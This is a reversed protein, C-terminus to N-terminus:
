SRRARQLVIEAAQLLETRTASWLLPAALSAWALPSLQPAFLPPGWACFWVWARAYTVWSYRLNGIHVLVWVQLLIFTPLAVMEAWGYGVFGLRPVLLAAAGAFVAVHLLMFATVERTRGLVQLVSIYLNSAAYGLSFLAIFPYVELVPVWSPGLLPPLAYHAVLGAGALLPGLFILQLNTGETVANVLKTRDAQVRALAAISLRYVVQTADFSFQQVLRIALAVYGVADAGAYRGVILPNVLDRLQGTWNSASYRLGYGLMTRAMATEWHPRPRYASARYLLSLTLLQQAWWGSVPAWPGLGGYALPLAVTYTTIQGSLEILAIRKYDLARELSALPVLGLMNAPLGVFLATAVPGFGEMRVWREILPLALIALAAGAVGLLLLLWFALHYDQPRPEEESRILYVEIGLRSVMGLFIYIGLAAGWLGYNGPGLARTLLLAGVGGIIAGAGQRLM